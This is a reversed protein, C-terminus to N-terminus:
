QEGYVEVTWNGIANVMVYYEGADEQVTSESEESDSDIMIDPIAGDKMLQQGKEMIYVSFLGIGKGKNSCNYKYKITLTGGNTKFIKSNKLGNGKLEILKVLSTSTGSSQTTSDIKETQGNQLSNSNEKKDDSFVAAIIGIIFLVIVIGGVVMLGTKLCGGKKKQVTEM